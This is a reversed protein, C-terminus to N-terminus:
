FKTLKIANGGDPALKLIIKDSNTLELTYIELNNPNQEVDPADAYIEAKYKGPPLFDLSVEVRKAKSNNLTGIYWSNGKRRAVTVFEDIKATPVVTEDWVTPVAKLFKFGPEGEYAEPYDCLSGLYSEMVVYMALMHARTGIMLPRTYHEKWESEPVARFGGLHYDTPGALLRTFAINLDHATTIPKQSFKNYEYNYAAERTFENPYTRSLGTPKNSGHFQIYLKYKAAKQLIEEQINIMEQDDRNMFDVMMGNIGWENFQKFAKELDPYIAKWHVWVHIGVGKGKAYDAIKKIDITPVTETVDTHEGVISYMAADSKYWPVGGYGIVAHYEIHNRAAFDIYYKNTEFNNGPAFSTDPIIDGNWWHFTTKGPKIWSVDEFRTPENLNALINSEILGGIRDGIMIVRWPTRHPLTAKVKIATQSPLPSLQSRLKGGEKKLYLSAYDRLNAETIAMFTSNSFEFLAPLDILTDQKVEEYPVKHVFGEHSNTYNDWFIGRVVPNGNINFTSEEELLEYSEWNEQEPIEYRFALGDNFARVVLNIKRKAGSREALPIIVQKHYDRVEKVKGVILEYSQNVETFEPKGMSLNPAFSGDKKFALGLKSENLLKDGKFVIEYVPSGTTLRFTFVLKGDPSALRLENKPFAQFSTLIFLLLINIKLYKM